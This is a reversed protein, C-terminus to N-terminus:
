KILQFDKLIQSSLLSVPFFQALGDTCLISTNVRYNPQKNVLFYSSFLIKTTTTWKMMKKKHNWEQLVQFVKGVRNGSKNIKKIKVWSVWSSFSLPFNFVPCNHKGPPNKKHQTSCLYNFLYISGQPFTDRQWAFRVSYKLYWIQIGISENEVSSGFPTFFSSEHKGIETLASHM